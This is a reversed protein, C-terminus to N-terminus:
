VGRCFISHFLTFACFLTPLMLEHTLAISRTDVCVFPRRAIQWLISPSLSCLSGAYGSWRGLFESAVQTPVSTGRFWHRPATTMTRADGITWAYDLRTVAAVTAAVVAVPTVAHREPDLARQCRLRWMAQIWSLWLITWLQSHEENGGPQWVRDDDALLSM